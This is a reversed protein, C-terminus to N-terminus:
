CSREIAGQIPKIEYQLLNESRRDTGPDSGRDSKDGSGGYM